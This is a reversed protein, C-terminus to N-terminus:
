MEDRGKGKKIRYLSDYSYKSSNLVQKKEKRKKEKRKKKEKREM